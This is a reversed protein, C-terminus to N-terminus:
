KTNVHKWPTENDAWDQIDMSKHMCWRYTSYLAPMTGMILSIFHGFWFLFWSLIYSILKKM